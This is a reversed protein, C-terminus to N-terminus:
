SSNIPLYVSNKNVTRYKIKCNNYSLKNEGTEYEKQSEWDYGGGSLVLRLYYM